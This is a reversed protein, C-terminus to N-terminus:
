IKLFSENPYTKRDAWNKITDAIKEPKTWSDFNANPMAKRNTETDIISPLITVIKTNEPLEKTQILLESLNHVSQKSLHYAIMGPNMGSKVANAGTLVFLSNKNLFKKAINAALISSNLNMEMMMNLNDIVDPDDIVGGLWGGAVNIVCDLKKSTLFENRNIELIEEKILKKKIIFNCDAETNSKFDINMVNWKPVNIKFSTIITRGLQGSGGVVLLNKM